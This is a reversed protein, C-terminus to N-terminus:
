RRGRYKAVSTRPHRSQRRCRDPVAGDAQGDDALEGGPRARTRNPSSLGTLYDAIGAARPERLGAKAPMFSIGPSRDRRDRHFDADAPGRSRVVAPDKRVAWESRRSETDPLGAAERIIARV